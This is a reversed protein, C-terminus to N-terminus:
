RLLLVGTCFSNWATATTATRATVPHPWPPAVDSGGGPASGADLVAGAELVPDAAGVSAAPASPHSRYVSVADVSRGSSSTSASSGCSDQNWEASVPPSDGSTSRVSVSDPPGTVTKAGTSSATTM